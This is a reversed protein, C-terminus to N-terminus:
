TDGTSIDANPMAIPTDTTETTQISKYLSMFLGRRMAVVPSNM